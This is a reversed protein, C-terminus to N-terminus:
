HQRNTTHVESTSFDRNNTAQRAPTIASLPSQTLLDEGFRHNGTETADLRNLHHQKMMKFVIQKLEISKSYRNPWANKSSNGRWTQKVGM